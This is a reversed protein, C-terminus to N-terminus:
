HKRCKTSSSVEFAPVQWGESASPKVVTACVVCGVISGCIGRVITHAASPSLLSTIASSCVQAAVPKVHMDTEEGFHQASGVTKRNNFSNFLLGTRICGM